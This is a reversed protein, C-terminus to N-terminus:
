AVGGLAQRANMLASVAQDIEAIVGSASGGAAASVVGGVAEGCEKALAGALAMLQDSAAGDPLSVVVRGQLRAQAETVPGVGAIEELALVVDVPAFSDTNCGCYNSLSSRSVRVLTAALDLGGVAEILARFAIKLARERVSLQVDRRTM